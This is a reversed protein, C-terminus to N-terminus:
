FDIIDQLSKFADSWYIGDDEYPDLYDGLFVVHTDEDIGKVAERWFERGHVDPIIIQKRTDM